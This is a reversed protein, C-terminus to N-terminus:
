CNRIMSRWGLGSALATVTIHLGDITIYSAHLDISPNCSSTSSLIALGQHEAKLTIRANVTGSHNIFVLWAETYTGDSVIGTQGATLTSAAKQM